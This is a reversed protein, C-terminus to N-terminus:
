QDIIGLIKEQEGYGLGVTIRQSKLDGVPREHVLTKVFLLFSDVTCFWQLGFWVLGFWVLGVTCFWQLYRQSSRPSKLRRLQSDQSLHKFGPFTM